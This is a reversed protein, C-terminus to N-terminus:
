FTPHLLQPELSCTAMIELSQHLQPWSPLLIILLLVPGVSRKAKVPSDVVLVKKMVPFRCSPDGTLPSLCFQYKESDGAAPPPGPDQWPTESVLLAGSGQVHAFLLASFPKRTKRKKSWLQFVSGKQDKGRYAGAGAPQVALVGGSVAWCQGPSSWSERTWGLAAPKQKKKKNPSPIELSM